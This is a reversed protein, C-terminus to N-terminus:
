IVVNGNWRLGILEPMSTYDSSYTIIQHPNLLVGNNSDDNSQNYPLM